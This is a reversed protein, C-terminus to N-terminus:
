GGYKQLLAMTDAITAPLPGEYGATGTSIVVWPVSKRPRALLKGMAPSDNDPPKDLDWFRYEPTQNDPGMACKSRLYTRIDTSALINAQAQTLKGLETAKYIFLVRLGKDPIPSPPIPGPGPGPGPGPPTPTGITIVCIAPLSPGDANGTYAMLRYTGPNTSWVVATMSDKLLEAPFVFLGPDLAVWQVSKGTTTAKVRLPPGADGQVKDPVSITPPDAFVPVALALLVVLSLLKM